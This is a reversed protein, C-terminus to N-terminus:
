IQNEAWHRFALLRRTMDRKYAFGIIPELLWKLVAPRCKFNYIFRVETRRQSLQKFRWTGGFKSLVWPGKTMEVAAHTPPSFSIYKSVLVSGSKSKCFSEAGLAAETQGKLLYAEVLFNDWELRRSYNQSYWFLREIPVNIQMAVTVRM